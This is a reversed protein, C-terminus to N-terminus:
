TRAASLRVRVVEIARDVGKVRVAAPESVTVRADDRYREAVHKELVIEGSEAVHQLRSAVNVTTGFYDLAGNASIVYCAGGHLGLKLGTREGHKAAKRFAEFRVLCEIAAEACSEEDGFAAMVADGMTKVVAGGHAAVAERLVDFHDDVLRFAAADGVESYLATSGTLDSFLIAARAVKLPTEPKLLDTSFLARFEPLTALEHATAANSAWVLRELKFHREDGCDNMVEIPAGPRLRLEAPAIAEESARVSAREGGDDVVDLTARGGGRAFVRYRGPESPADFTTKDGSAVIRQALVHPTRAPGGICFLQVPVKRVQAHPRFTAEVVRDLELEFGIDCMTCHGHEGISALEPVEESATRCSPCVIAWRLEVLGAPVAHLLAALVERRPENWEDALDFPRIRIADADPSREVFTAIRAVLDKRVAEELRASAAALATPNCPAVPELFPSEAHDHVHADIERALQVMGAVARRGGIWAIPRLLVSKTDAEFVVALKSGEGNPELTWTMRLWAIPGRVFKRYVGFRKPQEWEFPHEEYTVAFGGMRTEALFRAADHRTSELPRYRVPDMGILRNLRDTDVLLPWVDAPASALEVTGSARVSM